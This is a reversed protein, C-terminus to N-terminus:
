AADNPPKIDRKELADLRKEIATTRADISTHIETIHRMVREHHDKMTTEHSLFAENFISVISTAFSQMTAQLTAHLTAQMTELATHLSAELDQTHQALRTELHAVLEERQKRMAGLVTNFDERMLRRLKWELHDM